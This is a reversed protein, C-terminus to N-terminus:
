RFESEEKFLVSMNLFGRREFYPKWPDIPFLLLFIKKFINNTYTIGYAVMLWSCFLAVRQTDIDQRRNEREKHIKEHPKESAKM